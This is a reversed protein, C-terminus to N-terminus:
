YELNYKQMDKCSGDGYAYCPYVYQEESNGDIEKINIVDIALIDYGLKDKDKVLVGEIEYWTNNKIKKNKAIFGVFTADAACCSVSYKGIAFYGNPIYDEETITFGKVRITKGEYTDSKAVYTIYNALGDYTSDSVDFYTNSFDYNSNNDITDIEDETVEELPVENIVKEEVVTTNKRDNYNNMRNNALTMTLRGDGSMFLLIIPLILILDSVKFEDKDKKISYLVVGMIFLPLISLKLYIQMQPALYNKISDSLLVYIIISTYLFCIFGLFKKRM